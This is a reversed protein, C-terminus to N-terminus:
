ASIIIQSFLIHFFLPSYRDSLLELIDGPQCNL